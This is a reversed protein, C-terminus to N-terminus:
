FEGNSSQKPGGGEYGQSFWGGGELRFAGGGIQKSLTNEKGCKPCVHPHPDSMKMRFDSVKECSACKYVYIPMKFDKAQTKTNM